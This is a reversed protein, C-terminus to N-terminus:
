KNIKNKVKKWYNLRDVFVKNFSKNFFDIKENCYTEANDKGFLYCLEKAKQCPTKNLIHKM